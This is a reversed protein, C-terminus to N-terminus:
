IKINSRSKTLIILESDNIIVKTDIGYAQKLAESQLVDYPKGNSMLSGQNLLILRDCFKAALNLDHMVVMASGGDSCHKKILEMIHLQHYPDLSATPEDALIITPDTAFIRAILARLREGGSLTNIVRDSLHEIEAQQMARTVIKDDAASLRQWPALYPLRGLEVLRKVQLPWYAPAGQELYALSQALQKDNLQNINKQDICVDGTYETNINALIKLLSTKGAGNPGILGILEGKNCTIDVNSLIDRGNISLSINNGQLIM